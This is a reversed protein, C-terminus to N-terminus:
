RVWFFLNKEEEIIGLTHSFVVEQLIIRNIITYRYSLRIDVPLYYERKTIKKPFVSFKFIMRM